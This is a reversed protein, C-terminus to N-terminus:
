LAAHPAAPLKAPWYDITTWLRLAVLALVRADSEGGTRMM